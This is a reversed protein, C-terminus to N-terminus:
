FRSGKGIKFAPITYTLLKGYCIDESNQFATILNSKYSGMDKLISGKLHIVEESNAIKRVM